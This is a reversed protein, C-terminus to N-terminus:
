ALRVEAESRRIPWETAGDRELTVWVELVAIRTEPDLSRVRGGCAITEDVLVPARFNVQLRLLAAPDGAWDALWSALTGMTYMGHAVVRPFGAARAVEDDQHLPNRDGSADAYARVDERTVVRARGPLEQGVELDDFRARM